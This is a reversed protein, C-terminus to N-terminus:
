VQCNARSLHEGRCENGFIPAIYARCMGISRHLLQVMAPKRHRGARMMVKCSMRRQQGPSSIMSSMEPYSAMEM